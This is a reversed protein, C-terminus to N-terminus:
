VSDQVRMIRKVRRVIGIGYCLVVFLAQFRVSTFFNHFNIYSPFLCNMGVRVLAAPFEKLSLGRGAQITHPFNESWLGSLSESSSLYIAKHLPWRYLIRKVLIELLNFNILHRDGTDLQM